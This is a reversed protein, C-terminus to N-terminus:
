GHRSDGGMAVVVMCAVCLVLVGRITWVVTRIWNTLVLRRHHPPSFGRSLVGHQPVSCIATALWIVFLLGTGTWFAVAAQEPIPLYALAMNSGAEVLMFPGVVWTTLRQNVATYSASEAAGVLSMLPYHVVQVFWIVGVMSLTSGVYLAVLLIM